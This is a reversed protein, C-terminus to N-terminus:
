SASWRLSVEVRETVTKAPDITKGAIMRHVKRFVIARGAAKRTAAYDIERRFLERANEGTAPDRRTDRVWAGEWIKRPRATDSTTYIEAWREVKEATLSSDWTLILESAGDGDLDLAMLEGDHAPRGTDRMVHRVWLLGGEDGESYVGLVVESARAKQQSGTLSNVLLLGEPRGDGDLDARTRTSTLQAERPIERPDEPLQAAGKGALALSVLLLAGLVIVSVREV